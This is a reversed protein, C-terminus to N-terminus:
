KAFSIISNNNSCLKGDPLYINIGVSSVGIIKIAGPKIEKARLIQITLNEPYTISNYNRNVIISGTSLVLEPDDIGITNTSNYVTVSGEPLNTIHDLNKEKEDDDPIFSVMKVQSHKLADKKLSAGSIVLHEIEANCFAEAQVEQLNRSLVIQQLRKTNYFAHSQICQVSKSFSINQIEASDFANQSISPIDLMLTKTRLFSFSYASIEDSHVTLSNLTVDGTEIDDNMSFGRGIKKSCIVFDGKDFRSFWHKMERTVNGDSLVTMANEHTLNIAMANKMTIM